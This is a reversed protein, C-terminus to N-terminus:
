ETVPEWDTVRRSVVTRHRNRAAVERAVQEPTEGDTLAYATIVVEDDDDYRVGWEEDLAALVADVIADAILEPDLIPVDQYTATVEGEIAKLVAERLVGRDATM